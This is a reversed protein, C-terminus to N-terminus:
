RSFLSELDYDQTYIVFSAGTEDHVTDFDPDDVSYALVEGTDVLNGDYFEPTHRGVMVVFSSTGPIGLRIGTHNRNTPGDNFYAGDFPMYIPTEDPLNFAVAEQGGYEILQAQQCQAEPLVYCSGPGKTLGGGQFFVAYVLIGVVAITIAVTLFLIFNRKKHEDLMPTPQPQMNEQAM